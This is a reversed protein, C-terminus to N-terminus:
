TSPGGEVVVLDQYEPHRQIYKAVFPCVPVVKQGSSRADELAGRALASGIGQGAMSEPVETHTFVIAGDRKEYEVVATADGVTLEYRNRAANNKVDGSM